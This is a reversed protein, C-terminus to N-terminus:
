DLCIIPSIRITKLGLRLAISVEKLRHTQIYKRNAEDRLKQLENEDPYTWFKKQTSASFM